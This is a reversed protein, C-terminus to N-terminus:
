FFASVNKNRSTLYLLIHFTNTSPTERSKAISHLATNNKIIYNVIFDKFGTDFVFNESDLIFIGVVLIRSRESM